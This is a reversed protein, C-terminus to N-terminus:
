RLDNIVLPHVEWSKNTHIPITELYRSLSLATDLVRNILSKDGLKNDIHFPTNVVGGKLGFM